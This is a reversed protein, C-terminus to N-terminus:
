WDVEGVETDSGDTEDGSTPTDSTNWGDGYLRQLQIGTMLEQKWEVNGEEWDNHVRIVQLPFGQIVFMKARLFIAWAFRAFLHPRSPISLGRVISNQYTPWIETANHSLIHTVCQIGSQTLKPVIAFWGDNFCKRLNKGLRLINDECDIDAGYIRMGNYSYWAAEEQPVLHVRDVAYSVNTVSCLSEYPGPNVFYDM